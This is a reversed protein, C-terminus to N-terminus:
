ASVLCITARQSRRHREQFAVFGYAIQRRRWAKTGEWDSSTGDGHFGFTGGWVILTDRENSSSKEDAIKLASCTGWLSEDNGDYACAAGLCVVLLAV